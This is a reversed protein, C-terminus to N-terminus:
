AIKRKARTIEKQQFKLGAPANRGSWSKALLDAGSQNFQICNILAHNKSVSDVLKDLDVLVAGWVTTVSTGSSKPAERTIVAIVNQAEERKAEAERAALAAQEEIRQLEEEAALEALRVEEALREQERKSEEDAERKAQDARRQAEQAERKSKAAEMEAKLRAQREAEAKRREEAIIAEQRKREEERVKLQAKLEAELAKREEDAKRQAEEAEAQLREREAKARAEAEARAKEEVERKYRKMEGDVEKDKGALVSDFKNFLDNAATWAKRSYFCLGQGPGAGESPAPEKFYSELSKRKGRILQLLQGARDYSADSRVSIKGNGNFTTIAEEVPSIFNQNAAQEATQIQDSM